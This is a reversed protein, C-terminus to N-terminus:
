NALYNLVFVISLYAWLLSFLFHVLTEFKKGRWLKSSYGFFQVFLRVIWFFALGLSINRGLETTVLDEHMFFCLVGMLFVVFAIFFTHVKMMQRNILSLSKLEEKWNFYSPFILHVASLVMLLVGIIRIHMQIELM